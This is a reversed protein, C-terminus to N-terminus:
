IKKTPKSFDTLCLEGLSQPWIISKQKIPKKNIKKYKAFTNKRSNKNITTQNIM